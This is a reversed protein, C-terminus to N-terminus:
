IEPMKKNNKYLTKSIKGIECSIIEKERNGYGTKKGVPYVSKGGEKKGTGFSADRRELFFVPVSSGHRGYNIYKIRNM